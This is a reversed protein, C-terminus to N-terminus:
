PQNTCFKCTNTACVPDIWESYDDPGEVVKGGVIATLADSQLRRLSERDLSLKKTSTRNIKKM